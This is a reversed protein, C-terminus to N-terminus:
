VAGWRRWVLWQLQGDDLDREDIRREVDPRPASWAEMLDTVLDAHSRTTAVSPIQDGDALPDHLPPPVTATEPM